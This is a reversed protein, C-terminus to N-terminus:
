TWCRSQASGSFPRAFRPRRTGAYRITSASRLVAATIAPDFEIMEAISAPAFDEGNIVSLLRQATAPLPDLREIGRVLAEPVVRPSSTTM